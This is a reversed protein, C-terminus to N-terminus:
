RPVPCSLDGETCNLYVEFDAIRKRTLRELCDAQLTQRISGGEVAATAFACEADRFSIWARQAVILQRMTATKENLQASIQRYQANLQTDARRFAQGSCEHMDAQTQPANCDAAEAHASAAVILLGTLFPRARLPMM